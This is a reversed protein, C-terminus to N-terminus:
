SNRRRRAEPGMIVFSRWEGNVYVYERENRGVIVSPIRDLYFANPFANYVNRLLKDFAGPHIHQTTCVAEKFRAISIRVEDAFKERATLEFVAKAEQTSLKTARDKTPYLVSCTGVRESSSAGYAVEGILDISILFPRIGWYAETVHARSSLCAIETGDISLVRSNRSSQYEIVVANAFRVFDHHTIYREDGFYAMFKSLPSPTKANAIVLNRLLSRKVDAATEIVFRSGSRALRHTGKSTRALDLLRAVAMHQHVITDVNQESSKFYAKGIVAELLQKWSLPGSALTSLVAHLSDVKVGVFWYKPATVEPM